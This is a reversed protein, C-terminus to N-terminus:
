SLIAQMCFHSTTYHSTGITLFPPSVIVFLNLFTNDRTTATMSIAPMIGMLASSGTKEYVWYFCIQGIIFTLISTIRRGIDRPGGKVLAGLFSM